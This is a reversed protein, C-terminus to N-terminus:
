GCYGRGIAMELLKCNGLKCAKQADHCGLEKNGQNLYVYGRCTYAEINDPKLNIAKDFNEIARQYQLLTTYAVGRSQYADSYSPNLIIALNFDEIARQHQELKFYNVGRLYYAPAFLDQLEIANNLYEIAKQPDTYNLAVAKNYWDLAAENRESCSCLFTLVLFISAIIKRM